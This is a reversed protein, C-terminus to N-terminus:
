EERILFSAYVLKVIKEDVILKYNKELIKVAEKPDRIMLGKQAIGSYIEHVKKEIIDENESM